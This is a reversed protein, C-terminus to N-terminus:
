SFRALGEVLRQIQDQTTLETATVLLCRDLDPHYRGLPIGAGLGEPALADVIEAAPRPTTVVFEHFTPSAFRLGYGPVAAVARKAREAWTHCARAAQALGAPGLLTMTIAAATAMLAVNTCINSTAKERRIHQERTAMTLVFGREGRSDLTEGALRGPMHRVLKERVGFLGLHPGGGSAPVGLSQGEGAIIDAGLAGPPELLGFAYAEQFGVVLLAGKDHCLQAARQVDDLTGFFTPYGILVAAVGEDLAREVAQLDTVGGREPSAVWPTEVVEFGGPTLYQHVVERYEPHLAASMLVRDRRTTRCAMLAAEALSTSGDYMSANVVEAALLEGIMSQFEYIIQLTGQAVEPQYPTYATYLEGRLLLHDVARPADHHYVGGGVFSVADAATRNQGAIAALHAYLDREALPEPLDLARDLRLEPPICAFLADLSPLGIAELM